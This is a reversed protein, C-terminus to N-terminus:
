NILYQGSQMPKKKEVSFVSEEKRKQTKLAEKLVNLVSNSESDM